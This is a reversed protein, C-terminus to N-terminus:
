QVDNYGANFGAYLGAALSGVVAAQLGGAVALGLLWVLGGNTNSAETQTLERLGFNQLEITNTM